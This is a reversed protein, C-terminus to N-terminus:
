MITGDSASINFLFFFLLYINYRSNYQQFTLCVFLCVFLCVVGSISASQLHFVIYVHSSVKNYTSLISTEKCWEILGTHGTDQVDYM